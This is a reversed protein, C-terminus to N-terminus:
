RAVVKAIAQVLDSGTFPKELVAIIGEPLPYGFPNAHGTCFIFPPCERVSARALEFFRSGDMGPMSYDCLVLDFRERSLIKLAEVGDHAHLAQHGALELTFKMVAVLAPEDEVILIRLSTGPTM